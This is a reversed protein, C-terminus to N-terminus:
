AAGGALASSRALERRTRGLLRPRKSFRPLTRTMIKPGKVFALPVYRWPYTPGSPTRKGPSPRNSHAGREILVVLEHRPRDALWAPKARPAERPWRANYAILQHHFEHPPAALERTIPDHQAPM